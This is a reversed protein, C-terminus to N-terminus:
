LLRGPLGRLLGWAASAFGRVVAAYDRRGGTGRSHFEVFGKIRRGFDPLHLLEGHLGFFLGQNFCHDLFFGRRFEPSRCGGEVVKLHFIRISPSALIRVGRRRVRLSFDIEEGQAAGRFAPHFWPPPPLASKPILALGGPFFLTEGSVPRSFDTRIEGTRLDVRGPPSVGEPKDDQDVVGTLICGPHAAAAERFADLLGPDPVIDDDLFVAHANRAEALGLNRARTLSPRDLRCIRLPIGALEPPPALPPRNQDVVLLEDGERFQSRLAEATAWLVRDRM